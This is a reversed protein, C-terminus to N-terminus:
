GRTLFHARLARSPTLNSTASGPLPYPLISRKWFVQWQGDSGMSGGGDSFVRADWLSFPPLLPQTAFIKLSMLYAPRKAAILIKRSFLRADKAQKANIRNELLCRKILKLIKAVCGSSIRRPRLFPFNM